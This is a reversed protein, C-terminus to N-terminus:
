PMRSQSFPSPQQQPAAKPPRLKELKYCGDFLLCAAKSNNCLNPSNISKHLHPRLCLHPQRKHQCTHAHAFGRGVLLNSIGTLCICYVTVSSDTQLSEKFSHEYILANQSFIFKISAAATIGNKFWGTTRHSMGIVTDPTSNSQATRFPRLLQHYRFFDTFIATHRFDYTESAGSAYHGRTICTRIRRQPVGVVLGMSIKHAAQPAACIGWCRARHTHKIARVNGFGYCEHAITSRRPAFDSKYSKSSTLPNNATSCSKYHSRNLSLGQDSSKDEKEGKVKQALVM